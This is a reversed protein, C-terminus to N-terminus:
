IDGVMLSIRSLFFFDYVSSKVFRLNLLLIFHISMSSEPPFFSLSIAEPGDGSSFNKITRNPNETTKNVGMGNKQNTKKKNKRKQLYPMLFFLPLKAIVYYKLNNSTENSAM